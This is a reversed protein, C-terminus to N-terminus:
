WRGDQELLNIDAMATYMYGARVAHGVAEKQETVPLHDQDTNAITIQEMATKLIEALIWSSSQWVIYDKAKDSYEGGIEECLNALKVLALEIEQHGPVQKWKGEGFLSCVYDANKSPWILCVLIKAARQAIIHWLPKM